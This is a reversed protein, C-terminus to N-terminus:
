FSGVTKIEEFVWEQVGSENLNKAYKFVAEIVKEYNELGKKTLSISISLDSYAKVHSEGSSYLDMAYDEKKLYSLLSNEGEHGFLHYYYKQPNSKYELELYPLIFCFELVDKDKIPQFKVIKGTNAETFPLIPEDYRPVIM